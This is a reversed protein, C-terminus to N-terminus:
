RRGSGAAPRRRRRRQDAVSISPAAIRNELSYSDCMISGLGAPGGVLHEGPDADLHGREAGVADPDQRSPSSGCRARRGGLVDGRDLGGADAVREAGAEEAASLQSTPRSRAACTPQTSAAYTTSVTPVWSYEKVAPLEQGADLLRVAGLRGGLHRRVELRDVGSRDRGPRTPRADSWASVVYRPTGDEATDEGAYEQGRM